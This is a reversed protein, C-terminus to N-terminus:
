STHKLTSQCTDTSRNLKHSVLLHPAVLIYSLKLFMVTQMKFHGVYLSKGSFINMSCSETNCLIACNKRYLYLSM